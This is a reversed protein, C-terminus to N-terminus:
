HKIKPDELQKLTIKPNEEHKIKPDKTRPNIV